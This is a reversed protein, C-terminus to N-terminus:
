ANARRLPAIRPRVVRSPHRLKRLAKAEIQRIRERTVGYLEGMASLSMEEEGGLGFRCRIVGQERETLSSIAKHLRTYDPVDEIHLMPLAVADDYPLFEQTDVEAVFKSQKINHTVAPFIDLISVQLMEAIQIASKKFYWGDMFKVTTKRKTLPHNIMNIYPGVTSAHISNETCFHAVNKYRSTIISYLRNNKVNLELRLDKM